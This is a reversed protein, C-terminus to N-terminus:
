GTIQPKYRTRYVINFSSSSFPHLTVATITVSCECMYVCELLNFICTSGKFCVFNSDILSLCSRCSERAEVEITMGLPFVIHEDYSIYM